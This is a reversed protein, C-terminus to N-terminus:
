KKIKSKKLIVKEHSTLIEDLNLFIIIRNDLKCVGQIYESDVGKIVPSAPQINESKVKIVEAVHDVILGIIINEVTVIIIRTDRSPDVSELGLRKRMDIVPIIMGRLTIVGEVFEPSKAVHTIEKMRVIEKIRMINIAYEEEGVRFTALQIQEELFNNEVM